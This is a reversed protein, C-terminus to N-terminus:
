STLSGVFKVSFSGSGRNFSGAFRFTGRAKAYAGTGGVFTAKGALAFDEGAEDTCAKGTAPPITFKLKGKPATITSTGGFLPCPDSKAGTGKGVLAAKGIPVGKGTATATIDALEGSIRVVAKGSFNATFPVAKASAGLASAALVAAVAAVGATLAIKFTKVITAGKQASQRVTAAARGDSM